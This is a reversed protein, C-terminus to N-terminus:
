HGESLNGGDQRHGIAMCCGVQGTLNDVCAMMDLRAQERECEKLYEYQKGFVHFFSHEKCQAVVYEESEHLEEEDCTDSRMTSVASEFKAKHEM